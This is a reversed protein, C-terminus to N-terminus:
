LTSHSEPACTAKSAPSKRLVLLIVGLCIASDALNFAPWHMEKWYFDLFDVVFGFRVRDIINGFAGGVILGLVAHAFYDQKFDHLFFYIVAALALCTAVGLVVYRWPDPVNSFIGFAAGRNFTLTLSFIDPIVVISAGMSLKSLALIKSIQDLAIVVLAVIPLLFKKPSKSNM